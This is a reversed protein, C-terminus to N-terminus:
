RKSTLRQVARVRSEFLLVRSSFKFEFSFSSEFYCHVVRECFMGKKNVDKMVFLSFTLVM